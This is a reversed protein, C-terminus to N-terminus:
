QDNLTEETESHSHLSEQQDEPRLHAMFVKELPFSCILLVVAPAALAMFPVMLVVAIGGLLTLMVGLARIPHLIILLYGFRLTGRVGDTFRATYSAMYVTWTLVACWAVLAVWYLNGLPKGALKISRLVFVDVTLITMAVLAVLWVLTARKFEERFSGWFTKWLRGREKRICRYATAYLAVTAAGMTFIPLSFVIWLVSLCICDGIRTLAGVIPSDYGFIRNM